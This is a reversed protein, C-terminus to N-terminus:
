RVSRTATSNGSIQGADVVHPALQADCCLRAGSTESPDDVGIKSWVTPRGDADAIDAMAVRSM